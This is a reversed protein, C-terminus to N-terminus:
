PHQWREPQRGNVRYTVEVKAREDSPLLRETAAITDFVHAMTNLEWNERTEADWYLRAIGYRVAIEDASLARGGVSADIAYRAHSHFPAWCFYRSDVFRARVFMAGQILLLSAGCLAYLRENPLHRRFSKKM